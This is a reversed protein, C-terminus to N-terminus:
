RHGNQQRSEQHVTTAKTRGDRGGAFVFSLDGSCLWLMHVARMQSPAMSEKGTMAKSPDNSLFHRPHPTTINKIKQKTMARAVLSLCHTDSARSNSCLPRTKQFRVRRALPVEGDPAGGGLSGSVDSFGHLRCQRVRSFEGCSPAPLGAYGRILLGSLRWEPVRFQQVAITAKEAGRLPSRWIILFVTVSLGPRPSRKRLESRFGSGQMWGMHAFLIFEHVRRGTNSWSANLKRAM